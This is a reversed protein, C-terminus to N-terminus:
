YLGDPLMDGLYDEKSRGSMVTSVWARREFDIAVLEYACAMLDRNAPKFKVPGTDESQAVHQLCVCENAWWQTLLSKAGSGHHLIAFGLSYHPTEDMRGLNQSIYARAEEILSGDLFPGDTEPAPVSIGYAKIAWDGFRWIGLQGFYRRSYSPINM